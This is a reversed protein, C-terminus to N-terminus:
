SSESHIRPFQGAVFDVVDLHCERSPGWCSRLPSMIWCCWAIAPGVACTVSPVRSYERILPLLLHWTSLVCRRNHSKLYVLYLMDHISRFCWNPKACDM